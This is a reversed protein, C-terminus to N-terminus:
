DLEAVWRALQETSAKKGFQIFDLMEIAAARIRAIRADVDQGGEVAQLEYDSYGVPRDLGPILLGYYSGGEGGASIIEGVKGRDVGDSIVRVWQNVKFRGPQLEETPKTMM